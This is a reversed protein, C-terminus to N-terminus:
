KYIYYSILVLIYKIIVTLIYEGIEERIFVYTGGQRVIGFCSFSCKLEVFFYGIAYSVTLVSILSFISFISDYHFGYADTDQM